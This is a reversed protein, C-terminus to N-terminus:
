FIYTLNYIIVSGIIRKLKYKCDDYPVLEKNRSKVSKAGLSEFWYDRGFVRIETHIEHLKGTPDLPFSYALVKVNEM